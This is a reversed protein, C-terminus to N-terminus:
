VVYTKSVDDIPNKSGNWEPLNSIRLVHACTWPWAQEISYEAEVYAGIPVTFPMPTLVDVVTNQAGCGDGADGVCTDIVVTSSKRSDTSSDRVVGSLMRHVLRPAAIAVPNPVDLCDDISGDPLTVTLFLREKTWECAVAPRADTSANADPHPEDRPEGSCAAACSFLLVTPLRHPRPTGVM